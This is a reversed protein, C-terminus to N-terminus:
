EYIEVQNWRLPSFIRRQCHISISNINMKQYTDDNETQKSHCVCIFLNDVMQGNTFFPIFFLFCTILENVVIPM